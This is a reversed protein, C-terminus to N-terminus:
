NENSKALMCLHKAVDLTVIYTTIEKQLNGSGVCHSTTIFDVNEEFQEILNSEIWRLYHGEGLELFEYLERTNVSNLEEAGIDTKLIKILEIKEIASM